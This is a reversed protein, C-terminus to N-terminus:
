RILLVELLYLLKGAALSRPGSPLHAGGLRRRRCSVSRAM